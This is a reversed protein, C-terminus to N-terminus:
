ATARYCRDVVNLLDFSRSAMEFAPPVDLIGGCALTNSEVFLEPTTFNPIAVVNLADMGRAISGSYKIDGKEFIVVKLQPNLELVRNAAMCGASGGGIILVDAELFRTEM